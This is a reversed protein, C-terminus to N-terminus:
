AAVKRIRTRAPQGRAKDQKEITALFRDRGALIHQGFLRGALEASGEHIAKLIMSHEENSTEISGKSRLGRLRCLRLEKGLSIDLMALRENDSLQFIQRHFELNLPLYEEASSASRMREVLLSLARGSVETVRRAAEAAALEALRGRINFIDVVQKLNVTRVFVGRNKIIELLGIEQLARTAERVPARSVGLREALQKENIRDGPRLADTFLLNEIEQQIVDTLSHDKLTALSSLTPLSL